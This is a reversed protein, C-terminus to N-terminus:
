SFSQRALDAAGILGAQNLFQAKVIKLEPRYGRAPMSKSYSARIPELLRDGVASVGGGIVVLEPDLVPVFISGIAAGLREGLENIIELAGEDDEMIAQFVLEGNLVASESALERLRVGQPESSVALNRAANLLATGSAYPELCGKLGCGCDRGGPIALVHGLEGGVGFGGKLLKGDAIVAGGVGTGITLMIM